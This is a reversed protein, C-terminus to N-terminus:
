CKSSSPYIGLKRRLRQLERKSAMRIADKTTGLERALDDWRTHAGYHAVLVHRITIPTDRLITDVDLRADLTNRASTASRALLELESGTGRLILRSRARRQRRIGNRYNLTLVKRMEEVTIPAHNALLAHTQEIACEMLERAFTDDGLQAEALRRASPWEATLAEHVIPLMWHKQPIHRLVWLLDAPSPFTM